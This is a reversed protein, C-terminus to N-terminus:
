TQKSIFPSFVNMRRNKKNTSIINYVATGKLPGFIDQPKASWLSFEKQWHKVNPTPMDIVCFQCIIIQHKIQNPKAITWFKSWRAESQLCFLISIRLHIFDATIFKEKRPFNILLATAPYHTAQYLDM